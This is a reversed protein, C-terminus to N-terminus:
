ARLPPLHAFGASVLYLTIERDSFLGCNILLVIALFPTFEVVCHESVCIFGDRGKILVLHYLYLM